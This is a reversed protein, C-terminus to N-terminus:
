HMHLAHIGGVGPDHLRESQSFPPTSHISDGLGDVHADIFDVKLIPCRNYGICTYAHIVSLEGGFLRKTAASPSPRFPAYTIGVANISPGPRARSLAQQEAEGQLSTAALASAYISIKARIRCM